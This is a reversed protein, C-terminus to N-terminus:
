LPIDILVTTGKTLTSDVEMSGELHEVRREIGSLGMGEKNLGKKIDFGKGNDEVIINISEKYKTIAISAETADAHKIINTVLEQIIRFITIELTNEIRGDLGFDEVEVILKNTRSANRALKQVAPLLGNKAIVGSNKLHAMERVETYAQALLDGVKTFLEDMQGIKEKNKALHDFQLKAASLTAGVSDHLDGALREREKEQGAMMADITTLQQEKLIKETKQIEIESQQESIRQKRRSNKFLLFGIITVGFLGGGLAIAINQNQEKQKQELLIQKEKEATQYKTNFYQINKAHTARDLSDTKKAFTEYSLAAKEFDGQFYYTDAINKLIFNKTSTKEQKLPIKYAKELYQLAIEYSGTTKYFNGYNNYLYALKQNNNSIKFRVEAKNFYPLVSDMNKLVLHVHGMNTELNGMLEQLNETSVIKYADKMLELAKNYNGDQLESTYKYYYCDYLLSVDKLNNAIACNENILEPPRISYESTAGISEILRDNIKFALSPKLIIEQMIKKAKLLLKVAEENNDEFLALTGSYYYFDVKQFQTFKTTDLKRLINDIGVLDKNKVLLDLSKFSLDQCFGNGM